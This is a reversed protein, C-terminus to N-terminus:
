FPKGGRNAFMIFVVGGAVVLVLGVYYLVRGIQRASNNEDLIFSSPDSLDYRVKIKQSIRFKSPNSGEQFRKRILRGGAYYAMVPYFYDHIGKEKGCADPEDTVIEVVTAEARGRFTEKNRRLLVGLSGAAMCAAGLVILVIGLMGFGNSM